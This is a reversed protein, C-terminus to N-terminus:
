LLRKTIGEIFDIWKPIIIEKSNSKRVDMANKKLKVKYQPNNICKNLANILATTDGVPILIGNYDPHILARAGGSFFDTSICALGMAMGEILSNPMGEYNSPMVFIDAQSIYDVVKSVNGPLHVRDQIKLRRILEELVSRQPGDGYIVLSYDHTNARSFANILMGFNKEPSLRGSSVIIKKCSNNDNLVPLDDDIVPNPIVISNNRIRKSFYNQVDVTQFVVGDAKSFIIKRLNRHIFSVPVEKPDCRESLIFPINLAKAAWIAVEAYALHFCIIANPRNSKFIHKLEQYAKIKNLGTPQTDLIIVNIGNHQKTRYWEVNYTYLEIIYGCKSFSDILMGLIREGGGYNPSEVFFGIKKM